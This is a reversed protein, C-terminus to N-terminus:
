DNGNQESSIKAAEQTAKLERSLQPALNRGLGFTGSQSIQEAMTNVLMDKYISTQSSNSELAGGFMPKQAQALIQRLLVAEFQRSVENVKQAESLDKNDALKELPLQTANVQRQFATIEM